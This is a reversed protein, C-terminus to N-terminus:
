RSVSLRFLVLGVFNMWFITPHANRVIRRHRRVVQPTCGGDTSCGACHADIRRGINDHIFLPGTDQNDAALVPFTRADAFNGSMVLTPSRFHDM